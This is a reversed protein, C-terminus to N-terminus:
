QMMRIFAIAEDASLSGAKALEFGKLDDLFMDLDYGLLEQNAFINAKFIAAHADNFVLATVFAARIATEVEPTLLPREKQFHENLIKVEEEAVLGWDVAVTSKKKCVVIRTKEDCIYFTAKWGILRQALLKRLLEESNLSCIVYAGGPKLVRYVEGLMSSVTGEVLVADFTGKDIVLDFSDLMLFHNNEKIGAGTVLDCTAWKLGANERHRGRMTEICGADNDVSVIEGFELAHLDESMRSTGSGVVLCREPRIVGTFKPGLFRIFERSEVLWDFNGHKADSM